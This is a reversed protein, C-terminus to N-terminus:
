NEEQKSFRMVTGHSRVGGGEGWGEGGEKCFDIVKGPRLIEIEFEM